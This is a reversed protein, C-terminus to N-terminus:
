SFWKEDISKGDLDKLTIGRQDIKEVLCGSYDLLKDIWVKYISITAARYWQGELKGLEQIGDQRARGLNDLSYIGVIDWDNDSYELGNDITVLYVKRNAM